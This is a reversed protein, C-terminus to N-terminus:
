ILIYNQPYLDELKAVVFNKFWKNPAIKINQNISLLSASLSLSSNSIIHHKCELMCVFTNLADEEEIFHVKITSNSNTYKNWLNWTKVYKFDDTFLCLDISKNDLSELLRQISKEIYEEDVVHYIDKYQTTYDGRRIHIMCNNKSINNFWKNVMNERINKTNYNFLLRLENIVSEFYKFSQFYGKLKNYGEPISTYTFSPEKWSNNCQTYLSKTSFTFYNFLTDKYHSINHRYTEGYDTLLIPISNNAKSYSYLTCVQFIQNGLGGGSNDLVIFNKHEIANNNNIEHGNTDQYAFHTSSESKFSNYNDTYTNGQQAIINNYYLSTGLNVDELKCYEPDMNQIVCEYAKKSLYYCPGACYAAKKVFFPQKNKELIFREPAYNGWGEKSNQLYGLYDAKNYNTQIWTKFKECNLLIDDDIKIIWDPNLTAAATIGLKVKHPLFDYEDGCKVYIIDNIFDFKFDSDISNDGIIFFSRFHKNLKNRWVHNVAIRRTTYKRCSIIIFIGTSSM